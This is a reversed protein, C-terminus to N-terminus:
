APARGVGDVRPVPVDVAARDHDTITRDFSWTTWAPPAACDVSSTFTRADDRGPAVAVHSAGHELARESKADVQTREIAL